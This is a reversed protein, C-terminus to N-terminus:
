KMQRASHKKQYLAYLTFATLCCVLDATPTAVVIGYVPSLLCFLFMLPIDLFGKRLVALLFANKWRGVAQFFSIFTYACASFPAGICLIRLFRMGLTLSEGPRVFLGVLPRAALLCALMCSIGITLAIVVTDKIVRKMRKFDGSAYNYAILPLVGQTLGRVTAHALMNIKKAVGLGAQAATGNAMMLRDLCAYSINEFLTMICAPLGTSLISRVMDSDTQLPLRFSLVSTKRSRLQLGIMIAFAIWNSVATAIAAGLVEHGEPLLVFMFVPDLVINFISGCVIGISADMSRGESRFLHATIMNLSTGLGGIGVTVLLYEVAYRHVEPDGGGLIDLFPHRLLLTGAIYLVTLGVCGWFSFACAEGASKQNGGGLSRAAESAGGVGFLNAIASLFMFAPLCVTVAALKADSGSLGIFFTDAMNYLVLIVQGVITPLALRAIANPVPEREFVTTDRDTRM